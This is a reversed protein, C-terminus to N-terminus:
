YPQANSCFKDMQLDFNKKGLTKHEKDDLLPTKDDVYLAVIIYDLDLIEKVKPHIWVNEEMRRCNFCAHGTFDIFVPKNQMVACEKADEYDFYGKFSPPLHLRDSYKVSIDSCVGTSNSINNQQISYAPPIIGALAPIHNGFLGSIM